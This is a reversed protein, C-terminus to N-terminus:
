VEEPMTPAAAGSRRAHRSSPPASPGPSNLPPVELATTSHQLAKRFTLLTSAAQPVQEFEGPGSSPRKEAWAVRSLRPKDFQDAIFRFGFTQTNGLDHIPREPCIKSPPLFARMIPYWSGGAFTSGCQVAVDRFGVSAPMMAVEHKHDWRLRQTRLQTQLPRGAQFVEHRMRIHHVPEVRDSGTAERILITTGDSPRVGLRRVRWQREVGLDRRPV